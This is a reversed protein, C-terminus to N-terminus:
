PTMAGRSAHASLTAQVQRVRENFPVGTRTASSRDELDVPIEAVIRGPNAAMVIVKEALYVAERISHTVLLVTMPAANWLDYVMHDLEERTVEDVAAFPEDLLLIQPNVILARAFSARMRMGGSCARPLLSLSAGLGVRELAQSARERREEAAVGALELPLEVNGLLSRWPLLRPDQFCYGISDAQVRVEGASPQDLGAIQRLLTTKGCGSAGVLAAFVGPQIELNVNALVPADGGFAREVNRLQISSKGVM